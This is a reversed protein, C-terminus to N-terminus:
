APSAHAFSFNDNFKSIELYMVMSQGAHVTCGKTFASVGSCSIIDCSFNVEEVKLWSSMWFLPM